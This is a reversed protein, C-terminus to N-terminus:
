YPSMVPLADEIGYPHEALSTETNFYATSILSVQCLFGVFLVSFWLVIQKGIRLIGEIM